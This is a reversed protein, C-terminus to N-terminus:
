AIKHTLYQVGKAAAGSAQEACAGGRWNSRACCRAPLHGPAAVARWDEGAACLVEVNGDHVHHLSAHKERYHCPSHPSQHLMLQWALVFGVHPMMCIIRGCAHPDSGWGLWSQLCSRARWLSQPSAVPHPRSSFNRFASRQTM